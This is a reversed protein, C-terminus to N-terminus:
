WGFFVSGLLVIGSITGMIGILILLIFAILGSGKNVKDYLTTNELKTWVFVINKWSMQVVVIGGATWLIGFTLAMLIIGTNIEM